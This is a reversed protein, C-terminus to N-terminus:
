GENNLLSQLSQTREVPVQNDDAEWELIERHPGGHHRDLGVHLRTSGVRARQGTVDNM